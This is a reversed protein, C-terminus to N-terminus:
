WKLRSTMETWTDASSRLVCGWRHRKRLVELKLPDMRRMFVDLDAPLLQADQRFVLDGEADLCLLREGRLAVARRFRPPADNLVVLDIENKGTAEM